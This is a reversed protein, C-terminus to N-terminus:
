QGNVGIYKFPNESYWEKRYPLKVRQALNKAFSPNKLSKVIDKGYSLAGEYGTFFTQPLVPAVPIGQRLAWGGLELGGVLVDPKERNFLNAWEFHQFNGIHVTFDSCRSKLNELPALGYDDSYEFGTTVVTDIGLEVLLSQLSLSKALNFGIYAKKGKLQIKIDELEPKIRAHEDEIVKEIEKEKGLLKAADRLWWDTFEIGVPMPPEAFPVDYKQEFERFFYNSMLPCLTTAGAVESAKKINSINTFLPFWQVNIGIKNLLREIEVENPRSISLPNVILLTDKKREGPKEIVKLLGHLFADYGTAVAGSRFGECHLPIITAKVGPQIRNVAADVDDGIIGSACSTIVTIVPPNHRIDAEIIAKELEQTGGYVVDHEGLNTSISRVNELPLGRMHRGLKNFLSIMPLMASCGIPSHAIVVNGDLMASNCIPMMEACAAAQSFGREQQKLCGKKANKVLEEGSGGFAVITNLREERSPVIKSHLKLNAM